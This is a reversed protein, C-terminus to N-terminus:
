KRVMGHEDEMTKVIKGMLWSGRPASEDVVLVVDGPIFNRSPHNWKQRKQLLPLYEKTWRKWFLDSMYQVQRWRRRAYNDDTHFLGPPLNPQSKLLMLHQPTLAELDNMDNSPTTIPRSNLIAECECFFMQLGEEDLCQERLTAVMIKRISRIIREWVGGHHSGSPPNFIWKIDRQLLSNEIQSTNWEKIAKRLERDAGVFNTGNDSRMEKVQGRRAIFRRLAHIFSDTELSTPMEIHVARSALCTFIVGYRKVYSRGRKVNFPGFLDVGSRTFPPDDPVVRNRPLDAMMQTGAAGHQRRCTTCRSLMKRITSPADIIWYRQRVHSLIHNRGSHGLREHAERLILDAVHHDKPLLMPHKAEIPMSARSLRGGVRLIGEQLQPNLRCIRSGKKVPEKRQLASIEEQFKQQQCHRVIDLEAQRLDDLTLYTQKLSMKYRTLEKNVREQDKYQENIEKRKKSLNVLTVKVRILWAVAKKLRIWSSFYETLQQMVDASEKVTTANVLVGKKVEPDAITLEELQVPKDPWEREPKSLFSPGSIWVENQVFVSVRQGRSAYDAPNLQSSIHSWQEVRSAQLITAVRNAVFTKFRINENAIYKLVATSDTWFKSDSLSLQLEKKLMIDVKVALTAATLELRPVTTPKLPAVRSKGLVFSCHIQNNNNKQVLYTVTGYGTESADSFHHLRAEVTDGFEPPKFCRDVGVNTLQQLEEMWRSWQQALYDPVADDWGTRLRCLEQLINKAPLTVPSLMGLPDYVSSMMSLIGRRTLPRQQINVHFKFQDSRICWQVGLAREIALSEQDFDLNKVETARDEQPINTLVDRSNTMWKTLRFGGKLCIAKLDQYLKVAEQKSAVSRLCDDVYFNCLVTDVVAADFSSKNDEACRRLAYSACSPSSTAGFLHVEMRYEQLGQSVDGDLWWLFRLLDADEPPVKVQHFMSEVDAMIAVPEQRFRTLVGILSSTMNPGQLLQENLTAGQYSAGCDFVVRMKRKKPHYVGHHPIFWVKGDSRNLDENPVKVAYGKSIVDNMFNVYDEKFTQNRQLKKKLNLARQEAVARNNPMKVDKNKLPLGISYHGNVLKTSESVRDMFLQDEKSMELQESQASEPFDCKFQQAWLEELRAVSIRNIKIQPRGHKTRSRINERLPGNVTWGLATRVAYPGDKISRIVEEPELAKAVDTGILLGVDANISPIRVDQLHPWKDVDEQTPINEKSVPIVKQAFVETLEIFDDGELSSVELDPVAKCSVAKQEGMTTLLINVNKGQLHLDNALKNTCFSANSGPDLFAYCTLVKNGKKAKVRVPVIALISDTGGAGTQSSTDGADVFGSVVKPSEDRPEEKSVEEKTSDKPKQKIHLLTPHTASCIQCSKKEECAKSMHGATLCSFCLGKGKLFELKEKHLMKQLKKCQEMTHDGQCFICPKNFAKDVNIRKEQTKKNGDWVAREVKQAKVETALTTINKKGSTRETKIDTQRRTQGPIEGFVPHSAMEALMTIFEVVDKFKTRRDHRKQIDIAVSRFRERLRYPLKAIITRMNAANEMEDLYELDAMANSCSTLFLAYSELAKSDETKIIPWNLAKDLYAMSIKYKDGFREKLLRKAEPYGQEPDMHFCSRVLDNPPGITHQELYYLRDKSNETKSEISHEFARVFLRYEIPDGKFVPVNQPPLTSLKQQKILSETIDNQRQMVTVLNDTNVSNDVSYVPAQIVHDSADRRITHSHQGGSNGGKSYNVDYKVPTSALVDMRSGKSRGSVESGEYKKLVALQADAAALGAQLELEEKEAKLQLEHKELAQRKKLTASKALLAAKGLEVKLRESRASSTASAASVSKSKKSKKSTVSVSDEPKIGDSFRKAEEQRIKAALTWSNVEHAFDTYESNRPEFWDRQDTNMNEEYGTQCFLDKVQENIESFEKILEMYGALLEKEINEANADDDMLAYLENRKETLQGSIAKRLSIKMQLKHELGKLTPKVVRKEKEETLGVTDDTGTGAMTARRDTSGTIVPEMQ